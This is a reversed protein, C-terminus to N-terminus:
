SEYTQLVKIMQEALQPEGRWGCWYGTIAMKWLENTKLWYKLYKKDAVMLMSLLQNPEGLKNYKAAYWTDVWLWLDQFWNATQNKCRRVHGQHSPFFWDKGNVWDRNVLEYQGHYYFGAMLCLAQDRSFDYVYQNPHRVYKLKQPGSLLQTNVVYKELPIKPQMGFVTMIGALRSSDQLDSAGTDKPLGLDDILM